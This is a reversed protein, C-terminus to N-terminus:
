KKWMTHKNQTKQNIFSPNIVINAKGENLSQCFSPWECTEYGKSTLFHHKAGKISPIKIFASGGFASDVPILPLNKDIKIIRSKVFLSLADEYPMFNPREQHVKEWCDFPMWVPHRLAWLDYYFIEQNACIMDWDGTKFNSLLASETLKEINTENFDLVLLLDYDSYKKEIIDLYLNRAEAIRGTRCQMNPNQKIHYAEMPLLNKYHYLIEKTNDTSYSEVFVCKTETFYNSIFKINEMVNPIFNASNCLSSAIILRQKILADPKM